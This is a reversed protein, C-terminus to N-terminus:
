KGVWRPTRKEFFASRGEIHDDSQNTILQLRAETSIAESLSSNMAENMAKKTYCLSLPARSLLEEALERTRSRLDQDAVVRNVLGLELCKQASVKEGLAIMEFARKPGLRNSLHWSLGGDPILGITSFALYFRSSEAMVILDCAQAFACGIGAAVGNVSAIFPKPSEVITMLLPKYEQKLRKEVTQNEPFVENLDAGTSFAKGEGTLVVVRVDVNDNVTDLAESFERRMQADFANLSDPRSLTLTAVGQDYNLKVTSMLWLIFRSLDCHNTGTHISFWVDCL